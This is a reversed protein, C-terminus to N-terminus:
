YSCHMRQCMTMKLAILRLDKPACVHLTRWVVMRQSRIAQIRFDANDDLVEAIVIIMIIIIISLETILILTIMDSGYM